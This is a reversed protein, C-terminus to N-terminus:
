LSSLLKIQVSLREFTRQNQEASGITIRLGDSIKRILTGEHRLAEFVTDLQSGAVVAGTADTIQAFLFNAQSPYIALQPLESLRQMLRDREEVILPIAELLLHRQGLAVQAAMQTFAPLNYPLRVKELIAILEPHAIAYGIRHAALRLAKSFTRLIIWNPHQELEGVLTAKSFEFYAEDIVVLVNPPLDRLWEIEATTLVNGTPSNPHVVFVTRIPPQSPQAIAAQAADLDMQFASDRGVRVVPIGLTEAVIGYMSFTPQAVLISGEGRLCTAILVSRILEDSGNSVSIQRDSLSDTPLGASESVYHAIARKLASHEGDPYRNSELEQQFLWSLKQKLEDPLDYPCENTDLRDISLTRQESETDPSHDAAGPHPTYSVLNALDARLFPLMRRKLTGRKPLLGTFM